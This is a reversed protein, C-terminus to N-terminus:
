QGVYQCQHSFNWSLGRVGVERLIPILSLLFGSSVLLWLHQSSVRMEAKIQM